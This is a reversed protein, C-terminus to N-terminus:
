RFLRKTCHAPSKPVGNTDGLIGRSLVFAKKHPCMQQCAYWTDRSTFHFVAIQVKGYKITAGGNSPFDQVQGVHVWARPAAQARQCCAADARGLAQAARAVRNRVALGWSAAPWTRARNRYM